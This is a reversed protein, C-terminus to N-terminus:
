EGHSDSLRRARRALLYGGVGALTAGVGFGPGLGDTGNDTDVQSRNADDTDAGDDTDTGKDTPSDTGDGSGDTEEDDPVDVDVVRGVSAARRDVTPANDPEPGFLDAPRETLSPPDTQRGPEDPFTYLGGRTEVSGAFVTGLDISSAVFQSDDVSRATWFSTERPKRWRSLEVPDTPDSVDYVGVGGFYWSTYLRDGRFDFDHATTFWGQIRQDFSPPPDIVALREPSTPDAVDYLTIGSAGGVRGGAPGFRGDRDNIAWTERGVALLSGSEDVQAYHAAGGPTRAVQDAQEPGVALLEEVAFTGARGHAVPAGPDSVDVLWTGGDWYPLYATGNQVYVDHLMRLPPEIDRWREDADIPSWRSVEVPDDDSVDVVVLSMGSDRAPLYVTGDSFHLNHVHDETPHFAVQRPDAPDSVDFLAVGSPQGPRAHAPGGVALRDGDPWIDWIGRLTKDSDTEVERREALVTPDAPDSLDVTAFGDRVAVYAVGDAVAADRTGQVTVSGLPGYGGTESQGATSVRGRRRAGVPSGAVSGAALSGVVALFERRNVM